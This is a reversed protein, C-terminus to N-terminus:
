GWGPALRPEDRFPFVQSWCDHDTNHSSRNYTNVHAATFRYIVRQAGRYKICVARWQMALLDRPHNRV